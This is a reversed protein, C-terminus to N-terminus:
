FHNLDLSCSESSYWRYSSWEWMEPEKVLGRSVPNHHCYEICKRVSENNRCNHDYCRKEWLAFRTRGNRAVMFHNILPTHLLHKHITKSSRRKIEGIVPGLKLDLPPVVVLHVHEPMIVYALVDLSYEQSIDKIVGVVAAACRNDELVKVRRRTLFTVFRARGDHDFHKLRM